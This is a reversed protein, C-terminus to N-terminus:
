QEIRIQHDVIFLVLRLKPEHSTVIDCQKVFPKGPLREQSM